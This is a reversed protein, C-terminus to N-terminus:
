AAREQVAATTKKPRGRKPKAADELVLYLRRADALVEAARAVERLTRLFRHYRFLVYAGKTMVRERAALRATTRPTVVRAATASRVRVVPVAGRTQRRVRWSKPWGHSHAYSRVTQRAVGLAEGIAALTYGQDYLERGRKTDWQVRM